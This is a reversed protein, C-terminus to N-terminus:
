FAKRFQLVVRNVEVSDKGQDLRHRYTAYTYTFGVTVEHNMAYGFSGTAVLHYPYGLSSELASGHTMKDGTVNLSATLSPSIERSGGVGITAGQRNLTGTLTDVYENYAATLDLSARAMVKEFKVSHSMQRESVVLPDESNRVQTELTAVVKGFDSIVGADWFLHSMRSGNSFAQWTNGISCFIFSNSAYEYRLGASAEHNNFRLPQTVTNNFMYGGTLSLKSTLEHTLQAFVGEQRSDIGIPSWYRIDIYRVGVKITGKQGLRWLMYPSLSFTNQDTQDLSLSEVTNDRAVDLSIRSFSDNLDLKLFDDIITFAGQLGLTPSLEDKFNKLAHYRYELGGVAELTSSASAYKLTGGPQVRTVLETRRGSATENVNDTVDESVGISPVFRFEAALLTSPYVLGLLLLLTTEM